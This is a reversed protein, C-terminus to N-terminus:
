DEFLLRRWAAGIFAVIRGTIGNGTCDTCYYQTGLTPTLAYITASDLPTTSAPQWTANGSADSTLVGGNIVDKYYSMQGSGTIKFFVDFTNPNLARLGGENVTLRIAKANDPNDHTILVGDDGSMGDYNVFVSAGIGTATDISFLSQFHDNGNTPNQNVYGYVHSSDRIINGYANETLLPNYIYGWQLKHVDDIVTLKGLPTATGIGVNGNATIRIAENSNTKLAFDVSDTTGIFNTSDTGTNGTLSWGSFSGGGSGSLQTWTSNRYYYFRGSDSNFVQLGQVPSSIALMQATTVSNVKFGKTTSKLEFIASNSKGTDGIAVGNAFRVNGTFNTNGATNTYQAKAVTAFLCSLLAIIGTVVIIRHAFTILKIM